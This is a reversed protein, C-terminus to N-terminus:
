SISSLSMEVIISVKSSYAVLAIVLFILIWVIYTVVGAFFMLVLTQLKKLRYFERLAFFLILVYWVFFIIGALIGVFISMPLWYITISNSYLLLSEYFPMFRLVISSINMILYPYNALLTFSLVEKASHKYNWIIHASKSIFYSLLLILSINSVLSVLFSFVNFNDFALSDLFLIVFNLAFLLLGFPLYSLPREAIKKAFRRPNFILLTAEIGRSIFYTSFNRTFHRRSFARKKKLYKLLEVALYGDNTLVYGGSETKTVLSELKTLHYNLTGTDLGLEKLMQSYTINPREFLLLLIEKRIPNSLSSLIIIEIDELQKQNKENKGTM